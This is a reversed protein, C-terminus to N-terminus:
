DPEVITNACAGLRADSAERIIGRAEPTSSTVELYDGEDMASQADDELEKSHALANHDTPVDKGQRDRLAVV